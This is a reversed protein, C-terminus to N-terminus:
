LYPMILLSPLAVSKQLAKCYYLSSYKNFPGKFVHSQLFFVRENDM